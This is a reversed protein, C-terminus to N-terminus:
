AVGVVLSKKEDAASTLFAALEDFPWFDAEDDFAAQLERTADADFYMPAGYTWEYGQILPEGQFLQHLPDSEDQAQEAIDRYDLEGFVDEARDFGPLSYSGSLLDGLLTGNTELIVKHLSPSIKVFVVVMSM